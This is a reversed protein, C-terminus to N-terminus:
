GEAVEEESREQVDDCEGEVQEEGESRRDHHVAQEEPDDVLDDQPHVWPDDRQDDDAPNCSPDHRATNDADPIPHHLM